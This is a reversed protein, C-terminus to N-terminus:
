LYELVHVLDVVITVKVKRAKAGAKIRQIQHNNGDVLAVWTRQHKPDSAPGRRPGTRDRHRRGQRHQRDAVQQYRCAGPTPDHGTDQDNAIIDAPTRPVSTADYVAGIEAIRQYNSKEASALRTKPHKPAQRARALAAEPRLAEPRM